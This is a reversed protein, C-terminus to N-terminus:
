EFDFCGEEAASLDAVFFSYGIKFHNSDVTSSAKGDRCLPPCKYISADWVPAPLPELSGDGLDNVLFGSLSSCAHSRLYIGEWDGYGAGTSSTNAQRNHLPNYNVLEAEDFDDYPRDFGPVIDSNNYDGSNGFDYMVDSYLYPESYLYSPSDVREGYLVVQEYIRPEVLEPPCAMKEPSISSGWYGFDQCVLNVKQWEKGNRGYAPPLRVFYREWNIDGPGQNVDARLPNSNRLLELESVSDVVHLPESKWLRLLTESDAVNPSMYYTLGSFVLNSIDFKFASTLSDSVTIEPLDVCGEYNLPIYLFNFTGTGPDVEFSFQFNPSRLSEGDSLLEGNCYVLVAGFDVVEPVSSSSTGGNVGVWDGALVWESTLLDQEWRNYYFVRALRTNPDTNSFDWNMEGNVPNGYDQSSEFLRTNGIYKLDSPPSIYWPGESSGKMLLLPYSESVTLSLNSVSYNVGAPSLGTSDLLKVPTKPPLLEANVSFDSELNFTILYPTWYVSGEKRFMEIQGPGLLTQTLGKIGSSSDLGSMDLITVLCGEPIDETYTSFSSVDPFIFDPFPGFEPFEPYNVEAWPGCNLPDGLFVSFSGSQSNWWVKGYGLDPEGPSVPVTQYYVFNLLEDFKISREVNGLWLSIKENFGHISLADFVFHFPLKGGKNSWVGRFNNIKDHSGWDSPNTWPSVRVSLNSSEYTLTGELGLEDTTLSLPIDLYWLERSFDYAPSLSVTDSSFTVPLNFYYRGGAVFTNFKYPLTRETNYDPFLVLNSDQIECIFSANASVGPEPRYFPSPLSKPAIVKLQENGSLDTYFQETLTGFDLSYNEGAQSMGLLTYSYDGLYFTQGVQIRTDAKIIVKNEWNRVEVIEPYLYGNYVGFTGTQLSRKQSVSSVLNNWYNPGSWGLLQALWDLQENVRSETLAVSNLQDATLFFNTNGYNEFEEVNFTSKIETM